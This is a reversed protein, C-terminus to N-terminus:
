TPYCKLKHLVIEDPSLEIEQEFCYFKRNRIILEGTLINNIKGLIAINSELSFTVEETKQFIADYKKQHYKEFLGPVNHDENYVNKWLLNFENDAQPLPEPTALPFISFRVERINPIRYNLTRFVSLRIETKIKENYDEIKSYSDNMTAYRWWYHPGYIDGILYTDTGVINSNCEVKEPEKQDGYTYMIRDKYAKVYTDDLEKDKIEVGRVIDEEELFHKSIEDTVPLTLIENKHSFCKISVKKNGSSVLFICAFRREIEAIFDFVSIHPVHENYQFSTSGSSRLITRRRCVLTVDRFDNDTSLDNESLSFGLASVIKRILAELRVFPIFCDEPKGVTYTFKYANTGIPNILLPATNQYLPFVVFDKNGLTFSDDFANIMAEPTSFSESGLNLEDLYREKTGAWFSYKNSSIFLEIEEGSIDTIVCRGQLILYPGFYISAPYDKGKAKANVREIFGFVHRNQNINLTLPYTADEREYDFFNNIIKLAISTDLPIGIEQNSIYIKLIM